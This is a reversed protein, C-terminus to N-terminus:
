IMIHCGGVSLECVGHMNHFDQKAFDLLGIFGIFTLNQM